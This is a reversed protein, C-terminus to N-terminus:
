FRLFLHTFLIHQVFFFSHNFSLAFIFFYNMAKELSLHGNYLMQVYKVKYELGQSILNHSWM